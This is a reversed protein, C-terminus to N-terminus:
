CESEDTIRVVQCVAGESTASNTPASDKSHESVTDRESETSMHSGSDESTGSVSSGVEEIGNAMQVDLANRQDLQALINVRHRM